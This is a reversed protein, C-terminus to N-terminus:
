RKGRSHASTMIIIQGPNRHLATPKPLIKASIHTYHHHRGQLGSWMVELVSSPPLPALGVTIPARSWKLASRSASLRDSSRMHVYVVAPFRAPARVLAPVYEGFCYLAPAELRSDWTLSFHFLGRSSAVRRVREYERDLDGDRDKQWGGCAFAVQSWTDTSACFHQHTVEFHAANSAPLPQKYKMSQTTTLYQSSNTPSFLWTSM